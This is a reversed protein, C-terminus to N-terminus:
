IKTLTVVVDFDGERGTYASAVERLAGRSINNKQARDFERWNEESLVNMMDGLVLRGKVDFIGSIRLDGRTTKFVEVIVEYRGKSLKIEPVMDEFPEYGYRSIYELSMISITESMVNINFTHTYRPM